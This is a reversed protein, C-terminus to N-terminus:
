RRCRPNTLIAEEWGLLIGGSPDFCEFSGRYNEPYYIDDSSEFLSTASILVANEVDSIDVVLLGPGSRAYINDDKLNFSNIGPIEIFAMKKPLAPNTIDIIHVGKSSENIFVFPSRYVIQGLNGYPQPASSKVEIDSLNGYIPRLGEVVEDDKKQTCSALIITCFVIMILKLLNVM